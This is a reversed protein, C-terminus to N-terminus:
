PIRSARQIALLIVVYRSFKELNYKSIGHKTHRFYDEM